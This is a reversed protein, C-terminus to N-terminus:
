SNILYANIKEITEENVDISGKKLNQDRVKLTNEGPIRVKLSDKTKSNKLTEIFKKVDKKFQNLNTLLNPSFVLFLNGWGNKENKGLFSAGPLLGGLIEIMMGLGSGKYSNDFPVIAGTIAEDPDTTIDGRNNIAVNEPLRKGQSKAAAIAGFTTAGTSMDFILPNKESPIGFAIPNTGFLKELSNFPAIFPSTHTLILCILNEKAIKECYYSLSGTSNISGKTGVVAIGYKKGLKIAENMAIPAVLLGPNGNGEILISVKTKKIVKIRGPKTPTFIGFNGKLLRLLGHSPRGSLEGFMLVDTILEAQDKTYLTQVTKNILKRLESINIKM